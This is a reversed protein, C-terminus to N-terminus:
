DQGYSVNARLGRIVRAAERATPDGPSLDLGTAGADDLQKLVAEVDEASVETVDKVLGVEIAEDLPMRWESTCDKSEAHLVSVQETGFSQTHPPDVSVETGAPIVIDRTTVYKKAAKTM